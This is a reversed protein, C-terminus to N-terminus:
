GALTGLSNLAVGQGDGKKRAAKLACFSTATTHVGGLFLMIGQAVLLIPLAASAGQTAGNLINRPASLLDGAVDVGIKAKQVLEVSM